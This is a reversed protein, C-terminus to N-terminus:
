NDIDGKWIGDMTTDRISLGRFRHVVRASSFNGAAIRLRIRKSIAIESVFFDTFKCMDDDSSFSLSHVNILAMAMTSFLLVRILM